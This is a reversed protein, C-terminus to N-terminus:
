GGKFRALSAQLYRWYLHLWKVQENREDEMESCEQIERIVRVRVSGGRIEAEPFAGCRKPRCM